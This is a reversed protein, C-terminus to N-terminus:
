QLPFLNNNIACQHIKSDALQTIEALVLRLAKEEKIERNAKTISGKKESLLPQCVEPLIDQFNGFHTTLSTDRYLFYMGYQNALTNEVQYDNELNITSNQPLYPFEKKAKIFIEKARKAEQVTWHTKEAFRLTTFSPILWALILTLTFFPRKPIFTALILTLGPLAAIAYMPYQHLPLFLFISSGIVFWSIGLFFLRKKLRNARIIGYSLFCILILLGSLWIIVESCFDILFKPQFQLKSLVMQYKFEEPINFSWLSYWALSSLNDSGLHITYTGSIPIPLVVLRFLLYLFVISIYALSYIKGLPKNFLRLDLLYNFMFILMPTIILLEHFLLSISFLALGALLAKNSRKKIFWFFAHLNLFLMLAGLLLNTEALWFLSIFHIASTGFLFASLNAIWRNKTIKFILLGVLFTNVLHVSFSFLHFLLPNANFVRQQILYALQIGLPRYYIASNDKFFHFFQLWSSIQTNVLHLFDDQFFGYKLSPSFLFVIVALVLIYNV